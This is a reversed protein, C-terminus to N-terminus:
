FSQRDAATATGPVALFHTFGAICRNRRHRAENTCSRHVFPPSAIPIGHPTRGPGRTARPMAAAVAATRAKAPHADVSVGAEEDDPCPRAIECAPLTMVSFWMVVSLVSNLRSAPWGRSIKSKEGVQGVHRAPALQTCLLMRPRSALGARRTNTTQTGNRFPVRFAILGDTKGSARTVLRHSPPATDLWHNEWCTVWWGPGV